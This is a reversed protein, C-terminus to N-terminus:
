RIIINPFRKKILEKEEDTMKGHIFFEDIEMKEMWEPLVVDDIFYLTLSGIHNLKALIEPVRKVRLELGYKAHEKMKNLHLEDTDAIRVMWGIQPEYGHTQPNEQIGVFGALLEMDKETEEGNDGIYVYRFPVKVMGPLMSTLKDVKRIRKGEKNYPFMRLFWGDFVTPKEASCAGGRIRDPRDLMVIDRWFRRNPHGEASKIFEELVPKMRATYWQMGYKDLAMTKDLVKRWDAPTGKLTIEPIGCAIYIVVYEFYSKTIDMLTIGSAIRETNGTTSFDAIVTSAISDKTNEGIQNIFRDIIESWDVNGSFLDNKTEVVLSMSGDHSVFRDRLEEAHENVYNAFVQCINLWIMDPSLVLPRHEAYADVICRFLVDQGVVIISDGNFSSAVFSSDINVAGYDSMISKAAMYGATKRRKYQGGPAPLNEDVVFTIGRETKEIIGNGDAHTQSCVNLCSGIFCLLIIINRM